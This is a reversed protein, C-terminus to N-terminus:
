NNGELSQNICTPENMELLKTRTYLCHNDRHLDSPKSLPSSPVFHNLIMLSHILNQKRFNVSSASFNFNSLSIPWSLLLKIKFIIKWSCLHTKCYTKFCIASDPYIKKLNRFDSFRNNYFEHTKKMLEITRCICTHFHVHFITAMLTSRLPGCSSGSDDIFSVPISLHSFPQTIDMNLIIFHTLYHYEKSWKMSIFMYKINICM